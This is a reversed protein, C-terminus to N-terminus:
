EAPNLAVSSRRRKLALWCVAGIVLSLIPIAALNITTWGARQQLFGASAAAAATTAYVLFDHSAQVKAREAPKYTQTLLTSGGVYAFNWGLGVLANAILFNMFDVGALNVLACGLEIAAGTAIVPLVGIRSILAGTFFSPLFMAIIHWQIVTASDAFGYGCAMMALPTATMVLTMVAYGFMSSMLAVPYAPQRAIERLSRGGEAKEAATLDPIRVMQVVVLSVISLLAIAVYVGMFTIPDFWNVTWKALQPGVFGAIVGGAMVLSIAKPKLAPPSADAAAFRYYWAFAASAGQFLASACLLWFDQKWIAYAGLLGFLLGLMTGFSFGARRGIRGMLLSAPITTIMIGAHNLFIPLTALSKDSGLLAYGALPSTAIGMAQVSMFLGQALALVSVNRYVNPMAAPAASM